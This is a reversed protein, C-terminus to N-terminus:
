TSAVEKLILKRAAAPRDAYEVAAALQPLAAALGREDRAWVTMVLDGPSVPDGSKKHFQVGATPSVTEDTRNRGVGLQVGAHGVKWADIRAIFGGREAPIEAKVASRYRGRLSLFRDVDGGQSAINALFLARPRGSGLAEECLRRGAEASAAKGGLVAMRAALELSVEMLDPPGKGELCDLAEEVELFNGVMAGLPEEMGTLLAIIRMGMAAGTDVLSRALREAAEIEKMFAGCGYKVDLVLAEAGEAAKKSLISATILPISEVTGTVDRLAYLLRDAPVMDRSQGTMAFGDRILIERFEEGTLNTRYGPIAELKDLTGGTHGLARGSMMPDRIGLAAALPAIILSTKDGVGGTSHKDVLPGPVGSLDMVGGSRLMVETLAATEAATMGRFFVAMAWAAVQYDPIEGAVYGGILFALEERSLEKGARKAMIIDVTRM